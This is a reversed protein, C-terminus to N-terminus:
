ILNGCLHKICDNKIIDAAAPVGTNIWAVYLSMVQEVFDAYCTFFMM